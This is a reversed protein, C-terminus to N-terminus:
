ADEEKRLEGLLLHALATMARLLRTDPRVYADKEGETTRTPIRGTLRCRCFLELVERVEAPSMGTERSIYEPTYWRDPPAQILLELLSVNSLARFLRALDAAQEKMWAFGNQSPLLLLRLNVDESWERLFFAEDGSGHCCFGNQGEPVPLVPLPEDYLAAVSDDWRENWRIANGCLADYTEDIIEGARLYAQVPTLEMLESRIPDGAAPAEETFFAGPGMGYFEGLRCLLEIGPETEGTEWKSYTRDSVGLAEAVQKQTLGRSKRAATLNDIFKERDM